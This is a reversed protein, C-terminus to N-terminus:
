FGYAYSLTFTHNTRTAIRFDAANALTISKRTEDAYGRYTYALLVQHAGQEGYFYHLGVGASWAMRTYSPYAIDQTAQASPPSQSPPTPSGPEPIKPTTLTAFFSSGEVGASLNVGFTHRGGYILDYLYRAELGYVLAQSRVELSIPLAQTTGPRSATSTMDHTGHNEYGVYGRFRLALYRAFYWQYGLDLSIPAAIASSKPPNAITLDPFRSEGHVQTSSLSVGASLGVFCGSKAYKGACLKARKPATAQEQAQSSEADSDVRSPSDASSEQARAQSSELTSQNPTSASDARSEALANQGNGWDHASLSVVSAFLACVGIHLFKKM